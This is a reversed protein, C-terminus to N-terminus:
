TKFTQKKSARTGRLAELGEVEPSLGERLPKTSLFGGNGAELSRGLVGGVLAQQQELVSRDEGGTQAGLVLRVIGRLLPNAAECRESGVEAANM